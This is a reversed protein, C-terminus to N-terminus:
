AGAEPELSSAVSSSRLGSKSEKVRDSNGDPNYEDMTTPTSDAPVGSARGHITGPPDFSESSEIMLPDRM